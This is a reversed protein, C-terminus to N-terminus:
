SLIQYIPRLGTVFDFTQCMKVRCVAYAHTANSKHTIILDFATASGPHAPLQCGEKKIPFHTMKM